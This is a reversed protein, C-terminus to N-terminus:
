RKMYVAYRWGDYVKRYHKSPQGLYYDAYIEKIQWPWCFREPTEMNSNGFRIKSKYRTQIVVMEPNLSETLRKVEPWHEPPNLVNDCQYLLVKTPPTVGLIPYINFIPFILIQGGRDLIERGKPLFFNYDDADSAKLYRLHPNKFGKYETTLWSREHVPINTRLVVSFVILVALVLWFLHRPWRLGAMRKLDHEVFAWMVPLPFLSMFVMMHTNQRKEGSVALWVLCSCLVLWLWSLATGNQADDRSVYLRHLNIMLSAGGFFLFVYPLWFYYNVRALIITSLRGWDMFLVSALVGALGLWVMAQVLVKVPRWDYKQAAWWFAMASILLAMFYPGRNVPDLYFGVTSEFFEATGGLMAGHEKMYSPLTAVNQAYADLIGHSYLWLLQLGCLLLVGALYCGLSAWLAAKRQQQWLLILFLLGEALLVAAAYSPKSQVTFYSAAGLLFAWFLPRDNRHRIWVVGLYLCLSCSFTAFINYNLENTNFISNIFLGALVGRACCWAPAFTLLARFIFLGSLCVLGVSTIKWTWPLFGVAKILAYFYGVGVLAPPAGYFDLYLRQGMLLRYAILAEYGEDAPYIGKNWWFFAWALYSVLLFLTPLWSSQRSEPSTSYAQM